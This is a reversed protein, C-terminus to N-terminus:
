KLGRHISIFRPLRENEQCRGHYFIYHHQVNRANLQQACGTICTIHTKEQTYVHQGSLQSTVPSRCRRSVTTGTVGRQRRGHPEAGAVAADRRQLTFRRRTVSITSGSSIAGVPSGKWSPERYLMSNMCCGPEGRSDREGAACAATSRYHIYIHVMTHTHEYM